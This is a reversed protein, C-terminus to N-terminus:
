RSIGPAPAGTQGLAAACITRVDPESLRAEPHLLTWVGPMKGTSADNCSMALLARQQDRSYAGWESFNVAKRGESVGRAMLWSLPAV